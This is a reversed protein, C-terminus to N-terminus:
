KLLYGLVRRVENVSLAAEHDDTADSVPLLPLSLM